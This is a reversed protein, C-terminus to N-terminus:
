HLYTTIKPTNIKNQQQHGQKAIQPKLLVILAQPHRRKNNMLIIKNNTNLQLEKIHFGVLPSKFLGNSPSILSFGMIPISLRNEVPVSVKTLIISVNTSLTKAV